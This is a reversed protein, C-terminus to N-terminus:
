SIKRKVLKLKPEYAEGTIRFVKTRPSLADKDNWEQIKREAEVLSEFILTSITYFKRPELITGRKGRKTQRVKVLYKKGTLPNSIKIYKKNKTM